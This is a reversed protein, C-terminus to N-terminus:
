MTKINKGLCSCSVDRCALIIGTEMDQLCFLIACHMETKGEM